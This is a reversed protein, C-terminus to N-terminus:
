CGSRIHLFLNVGQPERTTRIAKEPELQRGLAQLQQQTRHRLHWDGVLEMYWRTPNNESFNGAVLEGGEVLSGAYQALLSVFAEDGLYDCLGPCWILDYKQQPQFRRPNRAEFRVHGGCRVCLRSAWDIAEPDLDIAHLSLASQPRETFYEAIDRGPGCGVVLVSGGASASELQNLLSQFYQKRNRVARPAPQSQFYEDWRVLLPNESRWGTYIRDIMEFDGPYGHPKHYAWGQLSDATLTPQLVARVAEGRVGEAALARFTETLRDYDAPQPGGREVLEELYRLM